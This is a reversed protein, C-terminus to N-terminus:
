AHLGRLLSTAFNLLRRTAHSNNGGFVYLQQGERFIGQRNKAPSQAELTWVIGDISAMGLVDRLDSTLTWAAASERRGSPRDHADTM